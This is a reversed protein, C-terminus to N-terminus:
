TTTRDPWLASMVLGVAIGIAVESFRHFAVIAKSEPRPVRMVIALAIGAYRYAPRDIHLAASVLGLLFVGTGFVWVNEPFYTGTLVGLAAGAATGALRQASTPLSAGLNSQMVIMTSIAAWYSEPLHFQRAFLLSVVVAVASRVAHRVSSPDRQTALLATLDFAM